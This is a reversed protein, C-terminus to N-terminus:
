VFTALYIMAFAIIVATTSAILVFRVNHGTVGQRAETTTKVAFDRDYDSMRGYHHFTM